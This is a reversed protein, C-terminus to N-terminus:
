RSRSCTPSPPAGQLFAPEFSEAVADDSDDDRDHHKFELRGVARLEARKSGDCGREEAIHEAEQINRDVPVIMMVQQINVELDIAPDKPRVGMKKKPQREDRKRRCPEVFAM